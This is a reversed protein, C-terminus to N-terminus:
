PFARTREFRLLDDFSFDLDEDIERRSEDGDFGRDFHNRDLIDVRRPKTADRDAAPLRSTKESNRSPKPQKKAKKRPSLDLVKPSKFCFTPLDLMETPLLKRFRRNTLKEVIFEICKKWAKKKTPEYSKDYYREGEIDCVVCCSVDNNGGVARRENFFHKYKVNSSSCDHTPLAKKIAALLEQNMIVKELYESRDSRSSKISNNM